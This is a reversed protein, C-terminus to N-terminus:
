RGLVNGVDNLLKTWSDSAAGTHHAPEPLILVKKQDGLGNLRMTKGESDVLEGWVDAPVTDGKILGLLLVDDMGGSAYMPKKLTPKPGSPSPAAASRAPPARLSASSPPNLLEEMTPQKEQEQKDERTVPQTQSLSARSGKPAKLKKMGSTRGTASFLGEMELRLSDDDGKKDQGGNSMILNRAIRGTVSGPRRLPLSAIAHRHQNLCAAPAQHTRLPSLLMGVFGLSQSSRGLSRTREYATSGEVTPRHLGQPIASGLAVAALSGLLSLLLLSSRGGRMETHIRTLMATGVVPFDSSLRGILRSDFFCIM